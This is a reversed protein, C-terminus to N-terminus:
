GYYKFARYGLICLIGFAACLVFIILAETAPSNFKQLLYFAAAFGAQAVVIDGISNTYAETHSLHTIREFLEWGIGISLAIWFGSNFGIGFFFILYGVIVGSILHPVTWLDIYNGRWTTRRSLFPRHM